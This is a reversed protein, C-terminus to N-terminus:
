RIHRRNVAPLVFGTLHWYAAFPTLALFGWSINEPVEHSIGRVPQRAVYLVENGQADYTYGASMGAAFWGFLCFPLSVGAALTFLKRRMGAGGAGGGHWM